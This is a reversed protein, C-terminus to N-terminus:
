SFHLHRIPRGEYLFVSQYKSTDVAKLATRDSALTM